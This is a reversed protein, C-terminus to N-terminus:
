KLSLELNITDSVSGSSKTERFDSVLTPSLFQGLGLLLVGSTDQLGIYFSFYQPLNLSTLKIDISQSFM